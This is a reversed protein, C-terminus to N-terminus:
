IVQIVKMQIHATYETENVQMGVGRIGCVLCYNSFTSYFSFSVIIGGTKDMRKLITEALRTNGKTNFRIIKRSDLYPIM